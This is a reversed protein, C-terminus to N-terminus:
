KEGLKILITNYKDTMKCSSYLQKLTQMIDVDQPKINNCVELFPIAKAFILISKDHEVKVKESEDTAVQNEVSFQEVGMNFYCVGLNYNAEFHRNNLEITKTYDRIAGNMDGLLEKEIGRNFYYEAYTSANANTPYLEIAKNFDMIAEQNKGKQALLQGRSFYPGYWSPDIRIAQNFDEIALDYKGLNIYCEGRSCFAGKWNEDFQIYKTYDKIANEYEKLEWYYTNARSNYYEKNTPDLEIAKSYLQIAEKPKKERFANWALNDYNMASSKPSVRTEEIEEEEAARKMRAQRQEPTGWVANEIASYADVRSQEIQESQKLQREYNEKSQQKQRELERNQEQRRRENEQEQQKQYSQNIDQQNIKATNQYSNNQPQNKPTSTTSSTNNQEATKNKSSQSQEAIKAQEQKKAESAKNKAEKESNIRYEIFRQFDSNIAECNLLRIELDYIGIVKRIEWTGNYNNDRAQKAVPFKDAQYKGFSFVKSGSCSIKSYDPIDILSGNYYVECTVHLNTNLQPKRNTFMHFAYEEIKGGSDYNYKIKNDFNADTISTKLLISNESKIFTYNITLSTLFPGVWTVPFTGNMHSGRCCKYPYEANFTISGSGQSFCSISIIFHLIVFILKKMRKPKFLYSNFIYPM